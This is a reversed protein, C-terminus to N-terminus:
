RCKEKLGLFHSVYRGHLYVTPSYMIEAYLVPTYFEYVQGVSMPVCNM